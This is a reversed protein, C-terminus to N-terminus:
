DRGLMEVTLELRRDMRPAEFAVALVGAQVDVALEFARDAAVAALGDHYLAHRAVSHYSELM